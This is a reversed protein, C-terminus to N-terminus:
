RRKPSPKLEEKPKVDPKRPGPAVPPKPAPRPLRPLPTTTIAPSSTDTDRGGIVVLVRYGTDPDVYIEKKVWVQQFEGAELRKKVDADRERKAIGRKMAHTVEADSRDKAKDLVLLICVIMLVCLAVAVVFKTVTDVRYRRLIDSAGPVWDSSLSHYIGL